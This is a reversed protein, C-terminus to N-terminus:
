AAGIAESAIVQGLFSVPTQAQFWALTDHDVPFLEPKPSNYAQQIRLNDRHLWYYAHGVKAESVDFKLCAEEFSSQGEEVWAKARAGQLLIHQYPKREERFTEKITGLARDMASMKPQNSM